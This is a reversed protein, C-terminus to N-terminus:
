CSREPLFGSKLLSLQDLTIFAVVIDIILIGYTELVAASPWGVLAEVALALPWAAVSFALAPVSLKGGARVTALALLILAIDIQVFFWTSVFTHPRTGAPFVGILALFVGAMVMYSAGTVGARSSYLRFQCLGYVSVLAGVAILGYNYIWPARASPGGLDSFADRTFVFWESNVLWAVGIVIWASVAAFPGLLVCVKLGVQRQM